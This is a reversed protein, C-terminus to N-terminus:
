VGYNNVMINYIIIHSVMEGNWWSVIFVSNFYITTTSFM